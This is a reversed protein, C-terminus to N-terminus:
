PQTAIGTAAMSAHATWSGSRDRTPHPLAAQSDFKRHKARTEQVEIEDDYFEGEQARTVLSPAKKACNLCPACRSRLALHLRRPPHAPHPPPVLRSASRMKDQRRVEELYPPPSAATRAAFALRMKDQRRVEGRYPPSEM